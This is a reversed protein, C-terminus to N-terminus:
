TSSFNLLITTQHMWPFGPLPCRQTRLGSVSWPRNALGAPASVVTLKGRTGAELRETLRPRAVLDSRPQPIYLKTSLLTDPM